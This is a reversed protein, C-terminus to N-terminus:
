RTQNVWNLQWGTGIPNTFSVAFDMALEAPLTTTVLMVPQFDQLAGEADVLEARLMPLKATNSTTNVVTGQLTLVTGSPTQATLGQVAHLVVGPPAQVVRTGVTETPQYLPVTTPPAPPHLQQWLAVAAAAAGLITLALALGLWKQEGLVYGHWAPKTLEALSLAPALFEPEPAPVPEASPPLETVVPSPTTAPAPQEVPSTAPPRPTTELTPASGAGPAQVVWLHGCQACKLKRGNPGIKTLPVQYAAGCQPCAAALFAEPVSM